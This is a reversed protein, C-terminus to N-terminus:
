KLRRSLQVQAALKAIEPDTSNLGLELIQELQQRIDPNVSLGEDLCDCALAMAQVSQSPM